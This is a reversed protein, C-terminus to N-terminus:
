SKRILTCTIQHLENADVQRPPVLYKGVSWCPGTYFQWYEQEVVVGNVQDIWGTMTERSFSQCVFPIAKGFGDSGQVGYCNAVYRNETYPCTLVLYGGTKLLRFINEIAKQHHPIHELVSICSVLDFPGDLSSRTIDDNIVHYHRNIMGHPWYDKINDTATVLFGCNRMVHPLATTGTGVDLIREPYLRAIQRFLFSYEVPRENLRVINQNAYEAQCQRANQWKGIRGFLAIGKKELFSYKMKNKCREMFGLVRFSLDKQEQCKKPKLVIGPRLKKLPVIAIM